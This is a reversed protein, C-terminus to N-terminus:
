KVSKSVSENRQTVIFVPNDVRKEFSYIRSFDKDVDLTEGYVLEENEDYIDVYIPERTVGKVILRYSEPNKTEEVAVDLHNVPNRLILNRSIKGSGSWIQFNYNGDPLGTFDYPRTFGNRNKIRDSYILQNERNYIKVFVFGASRVPYVLRYVAGSVEELRVEHRGNDSEFVESLDQAVVMGTGLVALLVAATFNKVRNM